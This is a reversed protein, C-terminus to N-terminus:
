KYMEGNIISKRFNMKLHLCAKGYKSAVKGKKGKLISFFTMPDYHPM